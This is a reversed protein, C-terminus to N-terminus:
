ALSRDVIEQVDASLGSKGAIRELADKARTRRAPEFIRWNNMATLIRAAVQPNIGDLTTIQDAFFEYGSGDERHFGTFNGTAFTTLLGRVRNPNEFSFDPHEVLARMRALGEAGAITAQVAFWQNVVLPNNRHREHFQKLAHDAVSSGGHIRVIQKLTALRDTMTQATEFQDSLQARAGAVDAAAVLALLANKLARNGAETAGPTGTDDDRLASIRSLATEGLAAGLAHEFAHHAAHVRDPDVDTGIQQAVAQESPLTLVLARYAPELNDDLAATVFADTIDRDVDGSGSAADYCTQMAQHALGQLAEWRNYLDDDHRARLLRADSPESLAMHVPASFGRLLSAVPRRSFGTFRVTTERRRLIILDGSVSPSTTKATVATGDRDLFGFRIPIPVLKKAKQSPTPPVSQRMNLTLEGRAADWIERVEVRPTGAQDYWRMFQSLDDGSVEEFCTIFDEVVAADGDHRSLYLDTGERYKEPGVLTAIMRVLEAGKRYVTATYFNNIEKYAGPRVPHALPGGDEVFQHTTLDRVSRIRQVVRSRQDASFEQDRYVTLGEKLCLQFWDRCTIRNGTWNHFYEHAIIAEINEYDEDTAIEPDALVYKDNFINLGKNEMAGMNFDSVAVINFIDLDYECGYNEEDWVMSRKLSDMAHAALPAKGPETYINLAVSRNSATTFTDSLVDLRGGVLAFLYCPKPHPDHWIAFHRNDALDGAKVPNGNSLLVPWEDRQAEIRVTYTSLVDPRDLFYTIRRFGEAECQTCFVGSSQYLGMLKTNTAPAVCTEIHITFPTTEPVNTLELRSPTAHYNAPDLITGNISVSVLALEDGDLMLPQGKPTTEGRQIELTSRVKTNTADLVVDLDVTSITYAPPAYDKLRITPATNTRMIMDRKAACGTHLRSAFMDNTLARM